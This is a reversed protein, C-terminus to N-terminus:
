EILAGQTARVLMCHRALLTSDEMVPLGCGAFRGAEGTAAIVGTPPGGLRAQFREAMRALKEPPAPGAGRFYVLLGEM